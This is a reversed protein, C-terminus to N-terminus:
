RQYLQFFDIRKGMKFVASINCQTSEIWNRNQRIKCKLILSGAFLLSYSFRIHKWRTLM